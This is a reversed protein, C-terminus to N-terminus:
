ATRAAERASDRGLPLDEILHFRGEGDEGMLSVAEIRHPGALPDFRAQADEAAGSGPTPGTLTLHMRFREMVYPYGWRALLREEAEDLGSARRRALEAEAPPARFDDLGEVLAAALGTPNTEPVLALFNGLRAVSLRGIGVPATRAALDRAASLVGEAARGPALRFPPKLTAHFGYRRPTAADERGAGCPAGARADWGLWEAGARGLDGGPLWYIAYRTWDM